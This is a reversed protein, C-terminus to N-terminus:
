WVVEVLGRILVVVSAAGLATYVLYVYRALTRIM